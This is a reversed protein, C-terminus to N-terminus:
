GGGKKRPYLTLSGPERPAGVQALRRKREQQYARIRKALPHRLDIRVHTISIALVEKGDESLKMGCTIGGEDGAYFVHDILLKQDRRVMSRQDRLARRMAATPRAPIPLQAEMECVLKMAQEYDDIM